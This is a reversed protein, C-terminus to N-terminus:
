ALRVIIFPILGLRSRKRSNGSRRSSSCFRMEAMRSLASSMRRLFSRISAITSVATSAAKRSKKPSAAVFGFPQGSNAKPLIPRTCPPMCSDHFRFSSGRCFGYRREVLIDRCPKASASTLIIPKVEASNSRACSCAPSTRITPLCSSGSSIPRATTQSPGTLSHTAWLWRIRKLASLDM